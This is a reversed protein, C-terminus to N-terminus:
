PGMKSMKQFFLGFFPLFRGQGSHCVGWFPSSCAFSQPSKVVFVRPHRFPLLFEPWLFDSREDNPVFKQGAAEETANSNKKQFFFEPV